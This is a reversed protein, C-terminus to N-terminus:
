IAFNKSAKKHNKKEDVWITKLLTKKSFSKALFSALTKSM